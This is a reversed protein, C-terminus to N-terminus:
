LLQAGFTSLVGALMARDTPLPLDAPVRLRGARETICAVLLEQKTGVLAYLERKSARARTAIELTSTQAYGGEAFAGFAAELIRARLPSQAADQTPTTSTARSAMSSETGLLVM